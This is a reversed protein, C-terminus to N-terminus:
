PGTGCRRRPGPTARKLCATPARARRLRRGGSAPWGRAQDEVGFGANHQGRRDAPAAGLETDAVQGALHQRHGIDILLDADAGIFQHGIDGFAEFRQEVLGAAARSSIEPRRGSCGQSQRCRARICDPNASSSRIPRRRRQRRVQAVQGGRGDTEVVIGVHDHERLPAPLPLRKSSMSSILAEVPRPAPMTAPPTSCRPDTPPAPSNPCVLIRAAAPTAQRHPSVPQRSAMAPPQASTRSRCCCPRLTPCM